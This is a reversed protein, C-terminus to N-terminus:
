RGDVQTSWGKRAFPDRRSLTALGPSSGAHASPGAPAATLGQPLGRAVSTDDITSTIPTGFGIKCDMVGGDVLIVVWVPCSAQPHGRMPMM